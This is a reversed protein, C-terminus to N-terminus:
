KYKNRIKGGSNYFAMGEIRQLLFYIAQFDKFDLDSGQKEFQKTTLLLHCKSVNFKNFIINYDKTEAIKQKENIKENDFPDDFKEGTGGKPKTNSIRHIM